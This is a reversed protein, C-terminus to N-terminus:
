YYLTCGCNIPRQQYCVECEGNRYPFKKLLAEARARHQGVDFRPKHKGGKYLKFLHPHPADVSLRECVLNYITTTYKPRTQIIKRVVTHLHANIRNILTILLCTYPVCQDLVTVEETWDSLLDDLLTFLHNMHQDFFVLHNVIENIPLTSMMSSHELPTYHLKKNFIDGVARENQKIETTIYDDYKALIDRLVSVPLDQLETLVKSVKSMSMSVKSMSM